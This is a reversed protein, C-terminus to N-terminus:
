SAIGVSEDPRSNAVTRLRLVSPVPASAHIENLYDIGPYRDWEPVLKPFNEADTHGADSLDVARRSHCYMSAGVQGPKRNM